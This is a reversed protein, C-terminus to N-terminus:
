LLTTVRDIQVDFKLSPEVETRANHIRLSITWGNDLAVLVTNRSGPKFGINYFRTPMPLQQVNILPRERGANRNLTGYMNFAQVQTVRRNDITIIKYFDNRGLLYHLLREPIVGQNNQNLRELERIFVELLQVYFREEKNSINRWLEGQERLEELEDFLPNIEIFYSESCPIGFWLEGFDITRSLRSHKVAAHNHKCSLGIEWENQRRICFIDRM